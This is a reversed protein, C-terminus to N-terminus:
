AQGRGPRSGELAQLVEADSVQYFNQYHLGVAEFPEPTELIVCDDVYGRIKQATEPPAVPLAAVIRATGAAKLAAISALYTAGTAVGDDVLLVTRGTLAPLPRGQRYLERRRRIEEEQRMREQEVYRAWNPVFALIDQNLHVYGTETLAGLALEPNGPAGIKRTILVDLPLQLARSIELGVLVGGRPIALVLVDSRNAYRRLADALKQGAEARDRFM